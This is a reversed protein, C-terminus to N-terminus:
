GVDAVVEGDAVLPVLHRQRRRHGDGADVDGAPRGDGRGGNGAFAGDGGDLVASLDSHLFNDGTVLDAM